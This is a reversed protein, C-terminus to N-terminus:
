EISTAEFSNADNLSQGRSLCTTAKGDSAFKIEGEQDACYARQGASPLAPEAAVKFHLGDCGTLAFIYGNKKGSALEEDLPAVGNETGAQSSTQVLESLSCTYGRQSHASHYSNEGSVINRISSSAMAENSSQQKKKMDKVFGKLFNPDGLPMRATFSVENLKWIGKESKMMFTLRPIIPLREERGSRYMHFSLDIENEDGVLNDQEVLIEIKQQIRPDEALLLTPGSDFTQFSSGATRAESAIMSIEGLFGPGTGTDLQQFAKRAVEPLHKELHNPTAGFFMELLAQRPSQPPPPMQENQANAALSSSLFLVTFLATRLMHVEM